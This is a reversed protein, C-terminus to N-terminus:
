AGLHRMRPHGLIGDKQNSQKATEVLHIGAGDRDSVQQPAPKLCLIAARPRITIRTFQIAVHTPRNPEAMTRLITGKCNLSRPSFLPNRPLDFAVAARNGPGPLSSPPVGSLELLAGGRSINVIRARVVKSDAVTYCIATLPMRVFQRRNEVTSWELAQIVLRCASM